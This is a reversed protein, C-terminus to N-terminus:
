RDYTYKADIVRKGNIDEAYYIFTAFIFASGEFKCNTWDVCNRGLDASILAGCPVFSPDFFYYQWMRGFERDHYDM